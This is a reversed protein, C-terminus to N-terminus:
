PSDWGKARELACEWRRRLELSRDRRMGPEFVRDKQWLCAIEDRDRWYGV